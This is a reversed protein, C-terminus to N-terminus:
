LFNSVSTASCPKTSYLLLSPYAAQLGAKTIAGQVFVIKKNKELNFLTFASIKQILLNSKCDIVINGYGIAVFLGYFRNESFSASM